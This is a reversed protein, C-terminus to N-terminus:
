LSEMTEEGMNSVFVKRMRKMKRADMGKGKRAKSEIDSSPRVYHDYGYLLPSQGILGGEFGFTEEFPNERGGGFWVSSVWGECAFIDRVL